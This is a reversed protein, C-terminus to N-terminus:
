RKVAWRRSWSTTSSFSPASADPDADPRDIKNIAVIVPVNAAKAHHVAEITQPMVGDDAAVVLVVIDTVGAGRGRMETFAEHRAHRHLHDQRGIVAHGPLRRHAPTIGGAELSVQDTERLADLLSTKGHDVHGMVTVVPPRPQRPGEDGADRGLGIEIDAESVRKVNHGFETAVVEAADGDIDQNITAMVGMKMLAKIVEAGREAMRNALEQVTITEPITVDRIIRQAEGAADRLLKQREKERARRVSAM